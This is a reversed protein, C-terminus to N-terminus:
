LKRALFQDNNTLTFDPSSSVDKLTVRLFDGLYSSGFVGGFILGKTGTGVFGLGRRYSVESKTILSIAINNATVKYAYIENTEKFIIGTTADGLIKAYGQDATNQTDTGVITDGTATLDTLTVTNSSVSYRYFDNLIPRPNLSPSAQGGYIIGTTATGTMAPRYRDTISAGAKTLKTITVNSGSLAYRYFDSHYTTANEAGGFILGATETGVMGMGYLNPITDGGATVESLTVNDDDITYKIFDKKPTNVSALRSYGGFLIGSTSNGVIGGLYITSPRYSGQFSLTIITIINDSVDYKYFDNFYQSTFGGYIVGSDADGTIMVNSRPIITNPKTLNRVTHSYDTPPTLLSLYRKNEIVSVSYNNDVVVNWDQTPVGGTQTVFSFTYSRTIPTPNTTVTWEFMKVTSSTNTLVSNTSTLSLTTGVITFSIFSSKTIGTGSLVIQLKDTAELYKYSDLKFPSNGSLTLPSSPNFSVSALTTNSSKFAGFYKIRNLNATTIGNYSPDIGDVNSQRNVSSQITFTNNKINYFYGRRTKSTVGLITDSEVTLSLIHDFPSDNQNITMFNNEATEGLNTNNKTITGNLLKHRVYGGTKTVTLIADRKVSSSNRSCAIHINGGYHACGWVYIKNTSSTASATTGLANTTAVDSINFETDSFTTKNTKYFTLTRTPTDAAVGFYCYKPTYYDTGDYAIGGKFSDNTVNTYFPGKVNQTVTGSRPANKNTTTSITHRFINSDGKSTTTYKYFNMMRPSSSSPELYYAIGESVNGSIGRSSILENSPITVGSTNLLVINATNGSITYRYFSQAVIIIGTNTDGNVMVNEPYATPLTDGTLTLATLTVSNSSTRYKRITLPGSYQSTTRILVIGASSTGVILGGFANLSTTNRLNTWSFINSSSISYRTFGSSKADSRHYYGSLLGSSTNGVGNLVRQEFATQVFTYGISGPPGGGGSIRVIPYRLSTLTMSNGSISYKYIYNNVHWTNSNKGGVLGSTSNGIMFQCARADVASGGSLATLTINNNVTYKYFLGPEYRGNNGRFIIGSNSDGLIYSGFARFKGTTRSISESGISAIDLGGKRTYRLWLNTDDLYMIDKLVENYTNNVTSDAKMTTDIAGSGILYSHGSGSLYKKSNYLYYDDSNALHEQFVTYTNKIFRLIQDSASYSLYNIFNNDSTFFEGTVTYSLYRGANAESKSEALVLIWVPHPSISLSQALYITNYIKRTLNSGVDLNLYLLKRTDRKFIINSIVISNGPPADNGTINLIICNSPRASYVNTDSIGTLSSNFTFQSTAYNKERSAIVKGTPANDLNGSVFSFGAPSNTVTGSGQHSGITGQINGDELKYVEIQYKSRVNDRFIFPLEIPYHKAVLHQFQISDESDKNVDFYDIWRYITNVLWNFVSVRPQANTFGESLLGPDPKTIIANSDTAFTKIDIPKEAM